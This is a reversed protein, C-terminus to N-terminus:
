RCEHGGRSNSAHASWNAQDNGTLLLASIDALGRHHRRVPLDIDDGGHRPHGLEIEGGLRGDPRQRGTIAM